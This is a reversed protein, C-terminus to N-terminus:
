LEKSWGTQKAKSGFLEARIQRHALVHPNTTRKHRVVLRLSSRPIKPARRRKRKWVSRGKSTRHRRDTASQPMQLACPIPATNQPSNLLIMEMSLVQRRQSALARSLAARGLRNLEQGQRTELQWRHNKSDKLSKRSCNQRHETTDQRILCCCTDASGHRALLEDTAHKLEFLGELEGHASTFENYREQVQLVETGIAQEKATAEVVHVAQQKAHSAVQEARLVSSKHESMQKETELGQVRRVVLNLQLFVFSYVIRTLVLENEASQVIRYEERKIRKAEEAAERLRRAMDVATKQHLAVQRRLNAAEHAAQQLQAAARRVAAVSEEKQRHKELLVRQQAVLDAHSDRVDEAAAKAAAAAVQAAAIKEQECQKAREVNKECQAVILTQEAAEAQNQDSLRKTEALADALLEAQAEKEAASTSHTEIMEQLTRTARRLACHASCTTACCRRAFYLRVCLSFLICVHQRPAGSRLQPGQRPCHEQAGM